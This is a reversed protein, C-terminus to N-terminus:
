ETSFPSDYWEGNENFYYKNAANFPGIAGSSGTNSLYVVRGSYSGSNSHFWYFREIRMSTEMSLSFM